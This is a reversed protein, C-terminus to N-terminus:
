EGLKLLGDLFGNEHTQGAMAFLKTNTAKKPDEKSFAEFKRSNKPDKRVEKAFALECQTKLDEVSYKGIDERLAKFSETELYEAYSGDDFVAEKQAKEEDAKYAALESKIASYNARMADLEAKESATLMELFLEWREDVFAVTDDGDDKSYKQGFIEDDWSEYVFYDDYVAMIWYFTNDAEEYPELLAYLASRIDEHSLEFTKTFKGESPADAGPVGAAEGGGGANEKGGFAEAFKAELEADPMGSCDFPVDEAAKGYKELLEEFKSLGCEGKGDDNLNLENKRSRDLNFGDITNNLKELMEVIKANVDNEMFSFVSNNSEAFDKLSVKSGEMGPKVGEGLLTLGQVYFDNIVLKKTKANYAMERIILEVSCDVSERRRLIDCADTYEEYIVCDATVFNRDYEEDYVLEFGEPNVFHGVPKEVYIFKDKEDDYAMSHGAFDKIPNGESDVEGTDVIDAMIPRDKMSGMNKELVETEIYSANKNGLDHFARVKCYLLGESDDGEAVEFTGKAAVAINYGSKEASFTVSNKHRSYFDYLDDISLISKKKVKGM